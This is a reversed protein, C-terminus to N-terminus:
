HSGAKKKGNKNLSGIATNEVKRRKKRMDLVKSLKGGIRGQKELEFCTM